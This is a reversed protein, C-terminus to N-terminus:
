FEDYQDEDDDEEENNSPTASPQALLNGRIIM